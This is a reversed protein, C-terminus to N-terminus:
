PTKRLNMEHYAAALKDPGHKERYALWAARLQAKAEDLSAASGLPPGPINVQM